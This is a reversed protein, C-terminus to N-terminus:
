YALAPSPKNLTPIFIPTILQKESKFTLIFKVVLFNNKPIVEIKCDKIDNLMDKDIKTGEVNLDKFFKIASLLEIGTVEKKSNFDIIFDDIEISAKSKSKSNYLFLSDNEYDYDFNFKKLMKVDKNM